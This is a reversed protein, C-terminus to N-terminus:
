SSRHLFAAAVIIQTETVITAVTEDHPGTPVRDVIQLDFAGAVRPLGPRLLPLLRDYYGGGYGLRRGDRDFAVGPVLVWDISSSAVLPCDPLPEPIGQHGPAIDRAPDRLAHLGLMRTAADVRPAVVVKGAALAARVLPLTDWESRFALTLLVCRAAAFTPLAVIREVIAAEAATRVGPDLADRAALAQRRLALKAERLAAGHPAAAGAPDSLHPMAFHYRLSETPDAITAPLPGIIVGEDSPVEIFFTWWIWRSRRL